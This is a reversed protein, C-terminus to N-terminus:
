VIEKATFNVTITVGDQVTLIGAVAPPDFGFDKMLVSTTATGTVTDGELNGKVDFTVPKTVERITLNGLLKFGIEQGETYSAPVGEVGTSVFTAYPYTDSELWERRIRQDRMARDSTLTRLDVKIETVQGTPQGAANFQFTGEVANTRGIAKNPLDRNLFQEQVEYSAETQEPGITFTRLDGASNAAPAASAAAPATPADPAATVATTPAATAEGMAAATPEAAAAPAATASIAPQTPTSSQSTSGGCAALAALLLASAVVM